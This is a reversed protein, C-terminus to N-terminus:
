KETTAADNFFVVRLQRAAEVVRRESAAGAGFCVLAVGVETTGLTLAGIPGPVPVTTWALWMAVNEGGGRVTRLRAAGSLESGPLRGGGHGGVAWSTSM